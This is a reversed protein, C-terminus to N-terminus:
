TTAKHYQPECSVLDVALPADPLEAAAALVFTMMGTPTVMAHKIHATPVTRKM